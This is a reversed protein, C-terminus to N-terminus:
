NYNTKVNKQDIRNLINEYDEKIDRYSMKLISSKAIIVYDGVVFPKNLRFIERVTRKIKNRGVALKDVKKSAIIGVKLQESQKFYIVLGKGTLKKGHNLTDAYEKSTKLKLNKNM